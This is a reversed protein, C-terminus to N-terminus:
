QQSPLSQKPQALVNSEARPEQDSKMLALEMEAEKIFQEYENTAREKLLSIDRAASVSDGISIFSSARKSLAELYISNPSNKINLLRSFDKIATSHNGRTQEAQGKFLSLEILGPKNLREGIQILRTQDELSRELYEPHYYEFITGPAARVFNVPPPNSLDRSGAYAFFIASRIRLLDENDPSKELELSISRIREKEALSMDSTNRLTAVLFPIFILALIVATKKGSSFSGKVSVQKDLILSYNNAASNKIKPIKNLIFQRTDKSIDELMLPCFLIERVFLLIMDGYVEAAYIESWSLIFEGRVSKFRLGSEEPFCKESDTPNEIFPALASRYSKFLLRIYFILGLSLASTLVHTAPLIGAPLAEQLHAWIFVLAVLITILKVKRLHCESNAWRWFATRQDEATMVNQFPKIASMTM